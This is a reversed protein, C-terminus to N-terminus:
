GRAARRRSWEPEDLGIRGASTGLFAAFRHAQDLRLQGMWRFRRNESDVFWRTGDSELPAAVTGRDTAAFTPLLLERLRLRLRLRFNNLEDIPLVLDFSADATAVDLPLMPFPRKEAEEMRAGDCLPQMCLLYAGDTELVTGLGLRPSPGHPNGADVHTRSFTALITFREDIQTANALQTPEDAGDLFCSTFSGIDKWSKTGITGKLEETDLLAQAVATRPLDLLKMGSKAVVRVNDVAPVRQAVASEVAPQDVWAEIVEDSLITALEDAILQRAFEEAALPATMARHSLYAFDVPISFKTVLHSARRRVATIGALAVRRLMGDGFTEMFLEPLRTALEAGSITPQVVGSEPKSFISVAVFGAVISTSSPKKPNLGLSALFDCIDACITEPYENGTYIAILRLRGGREIDAEVVGQLLPLANGNGPFTWDLILIDAAEALRVVRARDPEDPSGPALVACNLGQDALGDIIQKAAVPHLPEGDASPQSEANALAQDDVLLVTQLFDAPNAHANVLM